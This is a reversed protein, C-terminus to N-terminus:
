LWYQRWYLNPRNCQRMGYWQIRLLWSTVQLAMGAALWANKNAMMTNSSSQIAPANDPGHDVQWIHHLDMWLKKLCVTLHSSTLIIIVYQLFPLLFFIDEIKVIIILDQSQALAASSVLPHLVGLLLLPSGHQPDFTSECGTASQLSFVVLRILTPWSLYIRVSVPLYVGVMVHMCVCLGVCMKSMAKAFTCLSSAANAFHCIWLRSLSPSNPSPTDVSWKSVDPDVIPIERGRILTGEAEENKREMRDKGGVYREVTSWWKM